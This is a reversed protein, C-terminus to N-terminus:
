RGGKFLMVVSSGQARYIDGAVVPATQWPVIDEPSDLATDIWRRWKDADESKPLEFDLPERYANLILHFYLEEERLEGCFAVSYSHESWDPQNLKVGHWAKRAAAIMRNLSIRQREHEMARLSRGAARLDRRVSVSSGKTRRRAM